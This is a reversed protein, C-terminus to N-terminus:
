NSKKKSETTEPIDLFKKGTIEELITFADVMPLNQINEENIEDEFDWRVIAKKMMEASAAQAQDTDGDNAKPYKKAIEQQEKVLLSTYVEVTCGPYSPLEIKKTKRNSISYAM